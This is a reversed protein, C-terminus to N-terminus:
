TPTGPAAEIEDAARVHLRNVVGHVGGVSRVADTAIGRALATPAEGELVVWGNQLTVRPSVPPSALATDLAALVASMVEDDNSGDPDEIRVDIAQVLGRVGPVDWVAEAAHNKQFHSAVHGDLRVVGDSVTVSLVHAPVGPAGALAAEVAERVFTDETMPAGGPAHEEDIDDTSCGSRTARNIPILGAPRSAATRCALRHEARRSADELADRVRASWLELTGADLATGIARPPRLAAGVVGEVAAFPVFLELRDWRGHLVCRRSASVSIPVIPLGLSAALQLAGRHVAHAPGLPGDVAIACAGGAVLAARMLEFSARGGHDPLQVPRYGFRELIAAIADGRPSLSTFVVARRGSLLPLLAVYKAHWFVVVAGRGAAIRRDLEDLGSWRVRWTAAVAKLLRARVAFRSM